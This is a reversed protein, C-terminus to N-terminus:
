KRTEITRITMAVKKTQYELDLGLSSLLLARDIMENKITGVAASAM